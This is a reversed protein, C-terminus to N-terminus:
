FGTSPHESFFNIGMEGGTIHPLYKGPLIHFTHASFFEGCTECRNVGGSLAYLKQSYHKVIVAYMEANNQYCLFSLMKPWIDIKINPHTLLLDLVKPSNHLFAIKIFYEPLKILKMDIYAPEDTKCAMVMLSHFYTLIETSITAM